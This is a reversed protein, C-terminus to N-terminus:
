PLALRYRWLGGSESRALLGKRKMFDECLLKNVSPRAARTGRRGLEESVETVTKPQFFFGSDVLRMIAGSLGQPRPRRAGAISFARGKLLQAALVAGFIEQRNADFALSAKRAYEVQAKLLEPVDSPESPEPM